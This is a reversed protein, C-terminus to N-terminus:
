DIIFKRTAKYKGQSVQIFYMGPPLENINFKYEFSKGTKEIEYSRYKKGLIDSIQIKLVGKVANEMQLIVEGQAPNPYLIITWVTGDPNSIGIGTTDLNEYFLVTGYFEGIFADLDGDDDIDAFAPAASYGVDVGNFLNNAGTQQTFVPITITGTNKYYYITGSNEGIFADLDGDNDIDAFTPSAYYGVDVGDFLNNAGTQETFVPNTSDGTNKYYKITGSSEGIFADWDGDNDIDAFTPAAYGGVDVGNFPNSVGTQETFAPNINTGTNEYYKITGLKEGIFADLDGDNDIDAFTPAAYYGVDVSDLPNNLGTQEIFAPNTSNGTNEYYKITGSLTGIFADWDSDNDIDAFTPKALYGVDVGNFISSVVIQETFVANTSNGTNKYYKIIGDFEGIFADWDGDNDIDAFAPAAFGGVDAGNFPNNASDETFIPNTITGTNKYYRITGDGAGLFADLDTDNDIDAFVPAAFGGVDVSDFPNLVGTQETFVPNTSDGTNKYYKITGLSEGIFADLDGDDDIDKLAPGALNGVDVSDFPNNAGTQETFVPNIITGTNKYYKILGFNDGIFVDLDGDNDIDAFALVAYGGVVNVSDFPNNAGTQETFVPDTNTGTNKYYRIITDNGVGIFADWDGDNDIDVFAPKAEIGVDILAPLPNKATNLVFPGQAFATGFNLTLAVAGSAIGLTLQKWLQELKERLREVRRMMSQRKKLTLQWFGGNQIRRELRVRFKNYKKFTERYTRLIGFTQGRLPIASPINNM